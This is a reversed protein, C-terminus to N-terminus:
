PMRFSYSDNTNKYQYVLYQFQYLFNVHLVRQALIDTKVFVSIIQVVLVTIKTAIKKKNEDRLKYM